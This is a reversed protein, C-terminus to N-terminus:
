QRACVWRMMEHFFNNRWNWHQYSKAQLFFYIFQLLPRDLFSVVLRNLPFPLYASFHKTLGFHGKQEAGPLTVTTLSFFNFGRQATHMHVLFKVGTFWDPFPYAFSFIAEDPVPPPKKQTDATRNMRWYAMQEKIVEAYLLLFSIHGEIPSAENLVPAHFHPSGMM